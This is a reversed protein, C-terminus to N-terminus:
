WNSKQHCDLCMLLVDHSQHDRMVEPFLKRYEHPVIYKRLCSQPDGCVVCINEKATKYYEGAEGKPRGSPEFNLRVTLKSDNVVNGLGKEVYWMAKKSDIVCLLEGDPAELMANDYLPKKLTANGHKAKKSTTPIPIPSSSKSKPTKNYFRIDKFKLCEELALKILENMEYVEFNQYIITLCSAMITLVDNAAYSIQRSSLNGEWNSARIRWDKDMSFKLYHQALSQAGLKKLEPTFKKVLHRIDVLGRPQTNWQLRFRKLDEDLIGVGIKIIDPDELM